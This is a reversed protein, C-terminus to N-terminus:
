RLGGKIINLAYPFFAILLIISATLNVIEIEPNLLLGSGIMILIGQWKPIIGSQFLALGLLLFGLPLLPLLWLLALWSKKQLLADLAPTMATLEPDSLTDFASITLCFASKNGILMLAGFIALCGGIFGLWPTRDRLREMYHLAMIILLPASFFELVHALHLWEQGRFHVIWGSAEALAKHHILNPHLLNAAIFLTPFGLFALAAGWKQLTALRTNQHPPHHTM